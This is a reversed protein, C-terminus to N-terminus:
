WRVARGACGAEHGVTEGETAYREGCFECYWPLLAVAAARREERVLWEDQAVELPDDGSAWGRAGDTLAAAMEVVPRGGTTSQWGIWPGVGPTFVVVAVSSQGTATLQGSALEAQCASLFARVAASGPSGGSSEQLPPACALDPGPFRLLRGEAILREGERNEEGALSDM